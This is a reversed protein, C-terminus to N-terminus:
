QVNAERSRPQPQPEHGSRFSEPRPQPQPASELARLKERIPEPLANRQEPTDVPGTFTTEGAPNRATLTRRGDQVGLEVEGERDRM